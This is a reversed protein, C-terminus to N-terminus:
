CRPTFQFSADLTSLYDITFASLQTESVGSVAALFHTTEIQEAALHRLALSVRESASVQGVVHWTPPQAPRERSDLLPTLTFRTGRQDVIFASADIWWLDPDSSWEDLSSVVTISGDNHVLWVPFTPESAGNM